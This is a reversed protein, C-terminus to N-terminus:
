KREKYIRALFSSELARSACRHQAHGWQTIQAQRSKKEEEEKGGEDEEVFTHTIWYIFDIFPLILKTVVKKKKLQPTLAAWGSNNQQETSWTQTAAHIADHKKKRRRTRKHELNKTSVEKRAKLSGWVFVFVFRWFFFSVISYYVSLCRFTIWHIMKTRSNIYPTGQDSTYAIPKLFLVILTLSNYQVALLKKKM